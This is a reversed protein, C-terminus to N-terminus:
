PEHASCEGKILDIWGCFKMVMALITELYAGSLIWTYFYVLALLEFILCSLISTRPCQVVGQHSREVWLMEYGYSTYNQLYAGSMSSSATWGGARLRHDCLVDQRRRVYLFAGIGLVLTLGTYHFVAIEM